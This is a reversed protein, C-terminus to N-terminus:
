LTAADSISPLWPLILLHSPRNARTLDMLCSVVGDGYYPYLLPGAGSLTWVARLHRSGESQGTEGCPHKM